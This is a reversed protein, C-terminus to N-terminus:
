DEFFSHYDGGGKSTDDKQQKSQKSGSRRSLNFQRTLIQNSEEDLYYFKEPYENTYHSDSKM